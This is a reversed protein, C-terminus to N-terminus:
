GLVVETVDNPASALAEGSGEYGNGMDELISLEGDNDRM